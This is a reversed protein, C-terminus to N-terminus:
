CYRQSCSLGEEAAEGSNLLVQPLPPLRVLGYLSVEVGEAMTMIVGLVPVACPVTSLLMRPVRLIVNGLRYRRSRM